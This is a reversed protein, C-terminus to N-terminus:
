RALPLLLCLCAGGGAAPQPVLAGGHMWAVRQAIALGLGGLGGANRRMLVDRTSRRAALRAAVEPPLGPGADAVTVEAHGGRRRLAIEVPAPPPAHRLANDILNTLAREVLQLDGVIELPGPEPGRLRVRPPGELLQFKQV